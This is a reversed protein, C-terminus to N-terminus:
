RASHHLEFNAIEFLKAAHPIPLIAAQSTTESIHNRNLVSTSIQGPVESIALAKFKM